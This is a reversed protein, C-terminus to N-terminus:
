APLEIAAISAWHVLCQVPRKAPLQMLGPVIRAAAYFGGRNFGFCNLYDKAAAGKNFSCYHIVL